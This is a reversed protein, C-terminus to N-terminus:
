LNGRENEKRKNEYKKNKIVIIIIKKKKKRFFNQSPKLHFFAHLREKVLARVEGECISLSVEDVSKEISLLEKLERGVLVM